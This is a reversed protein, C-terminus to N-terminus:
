SRTPLALAKSNAPPKPPLGDLWDQRHAYELRSRQMRLLLDRDATSIANAAFIGCIAAARRYQSAKFYHPAQSVASEEM